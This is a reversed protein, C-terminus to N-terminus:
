VRWKRALAKVREEYEQPSMPPLNRKAMEFKVLRDRYRMYSDNEDDDDSEQDEWDEEGDIWGPYGTREMSRVIPDDPIQYM